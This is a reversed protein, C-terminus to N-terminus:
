GAGVVKVAAEHNIEVGPRRADLVRYTKSGSETFCLSVYDDPRIVASLRADDTETFGRWCSVQSKSVNEFVLSVASTRVNVWRVEEGARAQVETDSVGDEIAVYHIRAPPASTEMQACGAVLLCVLFGLAGLRRYSLEAMPGSKRQSENMQHNM